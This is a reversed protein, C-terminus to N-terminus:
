PPQLTSPAPVKADRVVSTGPFADGVSTQGSASFVFFLGILLQGNLCRGLVQRAAM